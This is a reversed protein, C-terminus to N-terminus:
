PAISAAREWVWEDDGEDAPIADLATEDHEPQYSEFWGMRPQKVTEIIPAEGKIQQASVKRMGGM